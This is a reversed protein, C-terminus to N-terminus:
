DRHMVPEQAVTRIAPPASRSPPAPWQRVEPAPPRSPGQRASPDPTRTTFGHLRCIAHAPGRLRHALGCRARAHDPAAAALPEAPRTRDAPAAPRPAARTAHGGALRQLGAGGCGRPGGQGATGGPPALSADNSRARQRVPEHPDPKESADRRWLPGPGQRRHRRSLRVSMPRRWGPDRCQADVAGADLAFARLVTALM